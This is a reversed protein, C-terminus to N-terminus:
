SGSIESMVTVLRSTTRGSYETKTGPPRHPINTEGSQGPSKQRKFLPKKEPSLVTPVHRLSTKNIYQPHNVFAPTM